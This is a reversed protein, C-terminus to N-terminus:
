FKINYSFGLNSKNLHLELGEIFNPKVVFTGDPQIMLYKKIFIEPEVISRSLDKKLKDQLKVDDDLNFIKSKNYNLIEKVIESKISDKQIEQADAYNLGLSLLASLLLNRLYKSENVNFNNYDKIHKM